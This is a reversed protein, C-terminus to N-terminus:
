KNLYFMLNNLYDLKELQRQRLPKNMNTNITNLQMENVIKM